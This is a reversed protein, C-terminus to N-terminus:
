KIVDGVIDDIEIRDYLKFYKKRMLMFWAVLNNSLNKISFIILGAFLLLVLLVSNKMNVWTSLLILSTIVIFINRLTVQIVTLVKINKVTKKLIFKLLKYLWLSIFIIIITIALKHVINTSKFDTDFIEKYFFMLVENIADNM